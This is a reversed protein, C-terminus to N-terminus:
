RAHDTYDRLNGFDLESLWHCWPAQTNDLRLRHCGSWAAVEVHCNPLEMVVEIAPLLDNDHSFVVVVDTQKLAALRVADVALAVDIGKEKAPQEPWEDPYKLNRRVVKM